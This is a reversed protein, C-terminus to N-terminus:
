DKATLKFLSSKALSSLFLNSQITSDKVKANAFKTSTLMQPYHTFVRELLSLFSHCNEQYPFNHSDCSSVHDKLFLYM